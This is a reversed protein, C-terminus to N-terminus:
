AFKMMNSASRTKALASRMRGQAVDVRLQRREFRNIEIKASGCGHMTKASLSVVPSEGSGRLIRTAPTARRLGKVTTHMRMAAAVALKWPRRNRRRPMAERTQGVKRLWRALEDQLVGEGIIRMVHDGRSLAAAAEVHEKVGAQRIDGAM